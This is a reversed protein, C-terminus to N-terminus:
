SGILFFSNFVIRTIGIGGGSTSKELIGVMFKTAGSESYKLVKIYYYNLAVGAQTWGATVGGSGSIYNVRM